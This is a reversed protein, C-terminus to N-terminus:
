FYHSNQRLNDSILGNRSLDEIFDTYAIRTDTVQDNQPKGRLVPINFEKAYQRFATNVQKISTYM